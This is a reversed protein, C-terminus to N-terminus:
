YKDTCRKMSSGVEGGACRCLRHWCPEFRPLMGIATFHQKGLKLDFGTEKAPVSKAKMFTCRCKHLIRNFDTFSIRSICHCAAIAGFSCWLGNYLAEKCTCWLLVLNTQIALYNRAKFDYLALYIIALIHTTLIKYQDVWFVHQRCFMISLKM